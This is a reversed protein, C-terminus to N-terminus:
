QWDYDDAGDEMDQPETAPRIWGDERAMRQALAEVLQIAEISPDLNKTSSM